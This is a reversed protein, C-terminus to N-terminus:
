LGSEHAEERQEDPQACGNGLATRRRRHCRVFTTVPRNGLPLEAQAPPLAKVALDVVEGIPVGIERAILRLRQHTSRHIRIGIPVRM